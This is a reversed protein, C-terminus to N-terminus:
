QFYNPCLNECTREHAEFTSCSLFGRILCVDSLYLLYLFHLFFIQSPHWSHVSFRWTVYHLFLALPITQSHLRSLSRFLKLVFHLTDSVLPISSLFSFSCLSSLSLSIHVVLPVPIGTFFHFSKSCFCSPHIYLQTFSPASDFFRSVFPLILSSNRIVQPSLTCSFSFRHHSESTPILLSFVPISSSPSLPLSLFPFVYQIFISPLYCPHFLYPFPPFHYLLLPTPIPILFIIKPISLDVLHFSFV